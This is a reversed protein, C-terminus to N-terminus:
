RRDRLLPHDMLNFNSTATYFSLLQPHTLNGLSMVDEMGLHPGGIAVLQQRRLLDDLISNAAGTSRSMMTFDPVVPLVFDPFRPSLAYSLDRSSTSGMTDRLEQSAAFSSPLASEEQRSAQSEEAKRNKCRLAHSVKEHAYTDDVEVWSSTESGDKLRKLFRAGGSKVEEVIENVLGPKQKRSSKLYRPRFSDIIM